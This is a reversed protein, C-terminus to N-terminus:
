IHSNRVMFDIKHISYHSATRELIKGCGTNKFGSSPLDVDEWTLLKLDVDGGNVCLTHPSCKQPAGMKAEKESKALFHVHM